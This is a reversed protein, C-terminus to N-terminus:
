QDLKSFNLSDALEQKKRDRKGSVRRSESAFREKEM